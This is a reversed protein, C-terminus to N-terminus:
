IELCQTLTFTPKPLRHIHDIVLEINKTEPLIAKIPGCAYSSLDSNQVSEPVGCIKINTCRSRDEIDVIKDKLWKTDQAQDEQTDIIDNVTNTLDGINAEIYTVKDELVDISHDFRHMLSLMDAQLSSRLSLLMDKLTTDMVPQGVTPFAAISDLRHNQLPLTSTLSTIHSVEHNAATVDLCMKVKAPSSSVPTGPPSPPPEMRTCLTTDQNVQSLAHQTSQVPLLAAPAENQLGATAGNQSRRMTPQYM